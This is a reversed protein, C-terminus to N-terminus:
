SFMSTLCVGTYVVLIILLPLLITVLRLFTKVDEVTEEDFKGGHILKALDIRSPQSVGTYSFASRHVPRKITASFYTVKFVTTLPDYKSNDIEFSTKFFAHLVMIATSAIIGIGIYSLSRTVGSFNGCKFILLLMAAGLNRIWYYMYFYSSLEHSTKYGIQDAGFPIANAQFAASGINIALYCPLLIYKNWNSTGQFSIALAALSYGFWMIWSSILIMRYRGVWVDALWGTIPFLLDALLKLGVMRVLSRLGELLNTAQLFPSIILELASNYAVQELGLMILVIFVNIGTPVRRRISKCFTSCSQNCVYKFRYLHIDRRLQEDHSLLPRTTSRQISTDSRSASLNGLHVADGPINSSEEEM